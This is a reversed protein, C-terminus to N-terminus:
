SRRALAAAQAMRLRLRWTGWTMVALMAVGALVVAAWYPPIVGLAWLVFPIGGCVLLGLFLGICLQAIPGLRRRVDAGSASPAAIRLRRWALLWLAGTALVALFTAVLLEPVVMNLAVIVDPAQPSSPQAQDAGVTEWLGDARRVLMGETGLAVVVSHTDGQGAIALDFPGPSFLRQGFLQFRGQRRMYRYRTPTIEWDVAWTKGGDRSVLVRTPVEARYCTTRDPPVCATVPMVAPQAFADWFISASDTSTWVWSRGGDTSSVVKGNENPFANPFTDGTAYIVPGDVTLREVSSLEAASTTAVTALTGM